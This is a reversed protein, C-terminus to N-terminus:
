FRLESPSHEFDQYEDDENEENDTWDDIIEIGQLVGELSESRYVTTLEVAARQLVDRLFLADGKNINLEGSTM